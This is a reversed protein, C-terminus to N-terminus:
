HRRYPTLLGVRAPWAANEREYDDVITQYTRKAEARRGALDHARAVILLSSARIWRPARRDAALGSAVLAAGADDGRAFQMSALRYRVQPDDPHDRRVSEYAQAAENWRREAALRNGRILTAYVAAEGSARRGTMWKLQGDAAKHRDKWRPDNLVTRTDQEAGPDDLLARYNARRLLLIPMAWVPKEPKADIAASVVKIADELKWQQQLASALGLQARVVPLPRPTDRKAEAALVREYLSAAGAYDEVAPGVYLEALQLRVDPNDPYERAFREGIAVGDSPRNEFSGYIQMLMMGAQFAFLSGQSYARELQRLGEARNGSPLFLFTRVVKAFTPV